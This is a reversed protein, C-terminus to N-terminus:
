SAVRLSPRAVGQWMGTRWGTVGWRTGRPDEWPEEELSLRESVARLPMRSESLRASRASCARSGAEAHELLLPGLEFVPERLGVDAGLEQADDSVATALKDLDAGDGGCVGGSVERRQLLMTGLGLGGGAVVGRTSIAM